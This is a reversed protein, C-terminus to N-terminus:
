MYRGDVMPESSEYVALQYIHKKKMLWMWGNLSGLSRLSIADTGLDVSSRKSSPSLRHHTHFRPRQLCILCGFGDLFFDPPDHQKEIFTLTYDRFGVVEKLNTQRPCKANRAVQPREVDSTSRKFPWPTAGGSIGPNKMHACEMCLSACRIWYTM